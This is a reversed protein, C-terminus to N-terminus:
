FSPSGSHAGSNVIMQGSILITVDMTIADKASVSLPLETVLGEFEFSTAVADGLVIEYNQLEDSEFDTLLLDYNSRIFNMTLSISGSEKFGAIFEKYGGVSDLNTVEIQDRKPGPGKISTIEAIADWTSGNWRHFTTGIGSIAQSM